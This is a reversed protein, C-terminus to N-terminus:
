KTLVLSKTEKSPNLNFRPIGSKLINLFKELSSKIKQSKSETFIEIYSQSMKKMSFAKLVHERGSTGLKKALDRDSLIRLLSISLEEPSCSDVLLGTHGDIILEGTGGDNNAVAPLGASLAELLANPCGQDKGLVVYADFEPLHSTIDFDPGHFFVRKGNEDEASRFVRQAYERHRPEVGGFIHLEAKPTQNWLFRMAEIIESIFKTPAIRGNVLIRPRNGSISYDSKVVKSKPVGNPIVTTKGECEYPYPGSYKLVLKNLREYYEHKSFCALQQFEAINEIEDFSNNGPSVDIFRVDTFHLTKTLLLKIKPDLNWFCVTSINESCIKQVLAETHDFADRSDATRSVKIGSKKLELYFYSATSNGAVAIEFKIKGKIAKALNVLSRQAGGSNLNATVFLVKKSKRTPRALQALTWLRYSPFKSWSPIKVDMALAKEIADTWAEVPADKSILILGQHDIEGQGGVRSAVVPMRNILAELTAMSLGEYHSTNMLVDFAPLCRTADSVFGPMAVRHRINLHGIEEIVTEWTSRGNRGIPGGLIVLYADRKELLSQLVQLAFKYNKQPKVAGIMGIVTANEPINWANRFFRRTKPDFKRIRPIHRIIPSYGKWGSKKLDEACGSSVTLVCQNSQLQSPDELWGEHANHLVPVIFAGKSSLADREQKKLLHCLCVPNSSSAIDGGLLKLKEIVKIGHLRTVKVFGPVVWESKCDRLVIIHVRWKPYIRTAWDLIISEAGGLALGAIAVTLENNGRSLLMPQETAYSSIIPDM